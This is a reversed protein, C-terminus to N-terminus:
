AVGDGGEAEISQAISTRFNFTSTEM